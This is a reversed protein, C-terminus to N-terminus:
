RYVKQEKYVVMNDRLYDFGLENNTGYTIDAEYAKKRGENDVLRSTSFNRRRVVSSKGALCGKRGDLGTRFGDM